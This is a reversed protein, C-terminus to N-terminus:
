IVKCQENILAYKAELQKINSDKERNKKSLEAIINNKSKIILNHETLSKQLIILCRFDLLPFNSRFDMGGGRSVDAM